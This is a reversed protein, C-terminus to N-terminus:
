KNTSTEANALGTRLKLLGEMWLIEPGDNTNSLSLHGGQRPTVGLGALPKGVTEELRIMFTNMRATGLGDTIKLQKPTLEAVASGDTLRIERVPKLLWWINVGSSLLVLLLIVLSRNNAYTLRKELETIRRNLDVETESMRDQM